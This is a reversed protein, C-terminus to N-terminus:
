PEPLVIEPPFLHPQPAAIRWRGYICGVERGVARVQIEMVRVRGNEDLYEIVYRNGQFRADLIKGRLQMAAVAKSLTACNGRSPEGAQAAAAGASALLASLVVSLKLFEAIRAMESGWIRSFSYLM